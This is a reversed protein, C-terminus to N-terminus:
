PFFSAAIRHALHEAKQQPVPQLLPSQHGGDRGGHDGRGDRIEEHRDEGAAQHVRHGHVRAGARRRAM